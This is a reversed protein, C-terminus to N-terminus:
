GQAFLDYFYIATNIGNYFNPLHFKENPAHIDDDPLGFGMMVVPVDLVEVLNTVIPLSGGERSFVPAKGFGFEYAKSAAEIAPGTMDIVAGNEASLKTVTTTMTPPAIDHIYKTFLEAITEANQNPVLRMSVKATAEATIVTKQGEGIFGGRIGHVDLTPRCGIREAVNFEKDGWLAPASTEKMIREDTTLSQAFQEKELATLEKVKDYFGPITVRGDDDHLKALLRAMANLPNEVVGGYAGSHLDRHSGRLTIEMYTLGRVGSVVVPTQPDIMGTDSIVAADSKLLEKNNAIFDTLNESGIEEEGEIMFKINLPLKGATKMYSEIAAIHTYHQGKNDDAGRAYLKDGKVTPEFPPTDWLDLPDVPQVDYHGYILITPADAGAHLWDAYVIPHGPTPMIASNEMGIAAFKNVLWQAAREMDAKNEPLTSISPIRILEQLGALAEDQHAQAYTLADNRM